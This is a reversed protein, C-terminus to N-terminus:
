LLLDEVMISLLADDIAYPSEIYDHSLGVINDIAEQDHDFTFFEKAYHRDDLSMQIYRELENKNTSEIVALLIFPKPIHTSSSMNKIRKKYDVSCGIKYIGPMADNKILYVFGPKHFNKLNLAANNQMVKELKILGTLFISV